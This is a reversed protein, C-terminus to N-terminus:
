QYVEELVAQNLYPTIYRTYEALIEVAPFRKDFMIENQCRGIAIILNANPHNILSEEVEAVLAYFTKKTMTELIFALWSKRKSKASKRYM